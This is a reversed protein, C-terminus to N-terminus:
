VGYSPVLHVIRLQHKADNFNPEYGNWASDMWTSFCHIYGTDHMRCSKKVIMGVMPAVDTNAIFETGDSGKLKVACTERWDNSICTGIEVIEARYSFNIEEPENCGTLLLPLLLVTILHKM